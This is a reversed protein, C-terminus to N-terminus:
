QRLADRMGSSEFPVRRDIAALSCPTPRRTTSAIQSIEVEGILGAGQRDRGTACALFDMKLLGLAEVHGDRVPHGGGPRLGEAAVARGGDSAPRRHRRRGRPDIRACWARSRKALDVVEKCLPDSDYSARLEQGPKLCEDLM